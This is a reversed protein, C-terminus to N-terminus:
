SSRMAWVSQLLRMCWLCFPKLMCTICVHCTVLFFLSCHDRTTNHLSPTCTRLILEQCSLYECISDKIFPCNSLNGCGMPIYAMLTVTWISCNYGWLQNWKKAYLLGRRAKNGPGAWSQIPQLVSFHKKNVHSSLRPTVSVEEQNTMNDSPYSHQRLMNLVCTYRLQVPVLFSPNSVLWIYWWHCSRM